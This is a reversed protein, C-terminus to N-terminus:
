IWNLQKIIPNFQIEFVKSCKLQYDSFCVCVLLYVPGLRDPLCKRADMKTSIRRFTWKPKQKDQGM